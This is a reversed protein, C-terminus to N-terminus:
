GGALQDNHRGCRECLNFDYRRISAWSLRRYYPGPGGNDSWLALHHLGLGVPRDTDNCTRCDIPKRGSLFRSCTKADHGRVGRLRSLAMDSSNLGRDTMKKMARQWASKDQYKDILVRPPAALSKHTSRTRAHTTSRGLLRSCRRLVGLSVRDFAESGHLREEVVM